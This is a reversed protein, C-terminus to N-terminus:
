GVCSPSYGGATRASGWEPKLWQKVMEAKFKRAMQATIDDRKSTHGVTKLYLELTNKVDEPYDIFTNPIKKAKKLRAKKLDWVSAYWLGEEDKIARSAWSHPFLFQLQSTWFIEGHTLTSKFNTPVSM